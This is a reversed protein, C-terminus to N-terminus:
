YNEVEMMLARLTHGSYNQLVHKVIVDITKNYLDEFETEDMATFSISKAKIRTSNDLRVYRYYFGALIIIDERFQNFNKEGVDNEPEWNDFAFNLLAFMKKHFEYNRVKKYQIRVATGTKIKDLLLRDHDSAPHLAGNAKIFFSDSM